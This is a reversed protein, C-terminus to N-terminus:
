ALRVLRSSQEPRMDKRRNFRVMGFLNAFDCARARRGDLTGGALGTNFSQGAPFLFAVHFEQNATEYDREGANSGQM